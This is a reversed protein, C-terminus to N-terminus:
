GEQQNDPNRVPCMSRSHIAYIAGRGEKKSENQKVYPYLYTDKCIQDLVDYVTWNDIKYEATCVQVRQVDNESLLKNKNPSLHLMRAIMEDDPTAYMTYNGM